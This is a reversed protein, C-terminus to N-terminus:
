GIQHQHNPRLASAGLRCHEFLQIGRAKCAEKVTARDGPNGGMDLVKLKAVAGSVLATSFAKM